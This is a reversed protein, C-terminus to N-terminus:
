CTLRCSLQAPDHRRPADVGALTTRLARAAIASAVQGSPRTEAHSLHSFESSDAMIGPRAPECVQDPLGDDNLASGADGAARCLLRLANMSSIDDPDPTAGQIAVAILLVVSTASIFRRRCDM